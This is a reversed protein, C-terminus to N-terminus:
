RRDQGDDVVGVRQQALQRGHRRCRITQQLQKLTHGIRAIPAAHPMRHRRHQRHRQGRHDSPRAREHRDGLPGGVGRRVHQHLEPHGARDRGFRRDAAAQLFQRRILQVIQEPRPRPQAGAHDASPPYGGEVALGQAAGPVCGAVQYVQQGPQALVGAGHEGLERDLRLGVFDRHQSRKEVCEIDGLRDDGRVCQVALTVGGLGDDIGAAVVDEGDLVVLQRQASLEFLKRPVLDRDGVLADLVTVTVAAGGLPHEFGGLDGAADAERVRHLHESEGAGDGVALGALAVDLGDIRDDGQRDGFGRGGLYGAPRAPVPRDLVPQVPHTVDGVGVVVALDAGPLPGCTMAVTRLVAM